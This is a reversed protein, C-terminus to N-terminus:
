KIRFGFASISTKAFAGIGDIEVVKGSWWGKATAITTRYFYEFIGDANKTMDDDGNGESPIITIGDPDKIIVKISTPDVAVLEDDDDYVYAIIRVTEKAIFDVIVNIM